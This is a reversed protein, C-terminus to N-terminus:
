NIALPSTINYLAMELQKDLNYVDKYTILTGEQMECTLYTIQIPVAKKLNFNQMSYSVIAKHMKTILNKQGDHMLLLTALKEAQEVRICGHSLDREDKAFLQQEPTDHLYVDYVNPFRFVLLGLSNDCGASQRAYYNGPHQKIRELQASNPNVYNGKDDYIIFQNKELYALDKLAKPLIERRFIRKPVKWDPSTTFYNIASRLTPTPWAPKGVIVRFEYTTDPRHYKLTYSPINVHIYNSDNIAAWRLREMNIAMKRIAAEPIDYCDGQYVGQLLHMHYQLDTYAKLKPQVNLLANMFDKRKMANILADDAKFGGTIGTDIRGAPFEPNLKGYHLNNILAILADTLMIDFTAKDTATLEYPHEVITNLRTYSLEKPHYDDHSLGFQLVCDLVLMADWTQKPDKQVKVWVPQFGNMQYFRTLSNPFYLSSERKNNTIQAKIETSLTTDSQSKLPKFKSPGDSPAVNFSSCLLILLMALLLLQKKYENIYGTLKDRTEM